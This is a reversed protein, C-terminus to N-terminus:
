SLAQDDVYDWANFSDDTRQEGDTIGKVFETIHTDGSVPNIYFHLEAGTYSRYLVVIQDDVSSEVEWYITYDGSKVMDELEPNDAYCYSKIASLAQEETMQINEEEIFDFHAIYCVSQDVVIEIQEDVSFDSGDKTWKMFIWGESAKASITFRTGPMANVYGSQAPYEEDFAPTDGDEAYAVYGLGETEIKLLVTNSIDLVDASSNEIHTETTSPETPNSKSKRCATTLITIAMCLIM